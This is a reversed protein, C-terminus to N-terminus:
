PKLSAYVVLNDVYSRSSRDFSGTCTILRLVPPGTRGYVDFAPFADKAYSELRDVVFVASTGDVRHVTIEDGPRLERLAYFVAPGDTSDVHGELVGAGPDGPAPGGSWWGVRAFDTPVELAGAADLGMPDVPATVGIAPIEVADPRAAPAPETTPPPPPPATTSPPPPQTLAPGPSAPPLLSPTGTTPAALVPAASVRTPPTPSGGESASGSMVAATAGSALLAVGVVVVAALWRPSVPGARRATRGVAPAPASTREPLENETVAASGVPTESM